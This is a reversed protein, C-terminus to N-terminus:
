SNKRSMPGLRARAQQFSRSNMKAKRQDWTGNLYAARSIGVPGRHPNLVEGCQACRDGCGGISHVLEPPHICPPLEEAIPESHPTETPANVM